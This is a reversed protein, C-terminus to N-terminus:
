FLIFIYVTHASKYSETGVITVLLPILQYQIPKNRCDEREREEFKKNPKQYYM